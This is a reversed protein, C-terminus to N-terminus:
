KVAVYEDPPIIRAEAMDGRFLEIQSAALEGTSHRRPHRTGLLPDDIDHHEAHLL